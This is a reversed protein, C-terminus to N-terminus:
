YPKGKGDESRVRTKPNLAHFPSKRLVAREKCRGIFGARGVGIVLIEDAM